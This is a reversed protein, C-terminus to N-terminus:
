NKASQNPQQERQKAGTKKCYRTDIFYVSFEEIVKGTMAYLGKGTLPYRQPICSSFPEWGTRPQM